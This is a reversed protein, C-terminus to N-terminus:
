PYKNLELDPYVACALLASGQQREVFASGEELTAHLVVQGTIQNDKFWKYAAAECNTGKPGLTHLIHINAKKQDLNKM